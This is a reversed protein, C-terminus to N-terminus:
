LFTYSLQLWWYRGPRPYDEPYTQIPNDLFDSGLMAPHRVDENFLNKIGARLTLGRVWPNFVSATLDVTHYGDLKDRADPPERNREGVHRYQANFSLADLPQYILGFNVLWNAAGAIEEGTDRDETHVYSINGDLKLCRGLERELELEVGSITAGGSNTYVGNDVVILDDLESYFLTARGVSNKNKYIYGLEYTDSIEPDIDPNGNLVPNNRSYMESFSPPRFARSYQTKIIHNDTLLWVVALRPTLSGGVDDYYDYRVGGTVTVSDALKFEDQFTVNNILRDKDEFFFNEPGEFHKMTPLPAYTAPSYNAEWWVDGMRAMTFSWGLLLTHRDWGSWTLDAGGRLQSEEYFTSIFVGDPFVGAYGPPAVFARDVNWENEHWGLSLDGRLVPSLDLRQKVVLVWQKWFHVLREEPSPLRDYIGFFDGSRNDIYHSNLSFDRYDLSFVFVGGENGENAPGPANSIAGMGMGYLIDPGTRVDAGDAKKGSLNLNLLLKEDESSWSLVGGGLYADYRGLGAFIRNGEKYTIINVVGASAFEGHIAAGPGRIFEIREVQEMPINLVSLNQGTFVYNVPTNNILYKIKGSYMSKGVGRILLQEGQNMSCEVGPALSMAEWVTRAGRAELEDGHLVTVMGPVFDANMKTKTAIETHKEIIELLRRMEAEDEPTAEEGSAAVAQDKEEAMTIDVVAGFLLIIATLGFFAKVIM